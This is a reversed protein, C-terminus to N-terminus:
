LLRMHLHQFPAVSCRNEEFVRAEGDVWAQKCIAAHLQVDVSAYPFPFDGEQTWRYDLREGERSISFADVRSPGYGDGADSYLCSTGEGQLPPYLHLTLHDGDEMPIVCGGRTFLPIRELSAEVDVLTPGEVLSDNWFNYWCGHPFRVARGSAGEDLIPAVLLHDGLMFADDVTMLASDTANPWFLPRVLPHGTQSCERALTYIYPLMRYRLKLFDRLIDLAVEGYVWPERRHIGTASHTRFFPLFTALQFWRIYLEANPHASFGGVDPGTYAIGSLGLNIATHVTMRLAEWTSETDGTWNWAYRQTGAYGSRSLLWPRADPQLERLAEYGARNMLHGYLNHAQRHDGGKGEMAHRTSLPLTLEGWTSFASPENMDHWFGAVGAEILQRYYSGWWTRTEPSTFDPFACWGPWVLARQMSGDPRECFVRRALGDKFVPYSPDIKVGPDLITVVRVDHEGLDTILRQLDPFRTTDVTFVRYGDMYDIDLHIVSLPLDRERFGEVVERIDEERKYGWRCQHYGLAWRPPLPHRGTLQTYRELLRDLPGSAVYYRLAGGEFEVQAPHLASFSGDFSNEYYVLLSNGPRVSIYVPISLYLPDQQPGYAGGVETNWFRYRGGRLNFATGREGLGYIYKEADFDTRHIWGSGSWEPPYDHRLIQNQDDEFRIAGEGSIHIRLRSNSISTGDDAQTSVTDIANWEQQALAYPLPLAGPQWTLCVLDEALFCVDLECNEFQFRGGCPEEASDVLRGPSLRAQTAHLELFRRDLIDRQLAYRITRLSAIWGVSRVSRVAKGLLEM